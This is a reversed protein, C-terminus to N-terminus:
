IVGVMMSDDCIEKLSEIAELVESAVDDHAVMAEDYTYITEPIGKAYWLTGDLDRILVRFCPTSKGPVWIMKTVVAEGNPYTSRRINNSSNNWMYVGYDSEDKPLEMLTWDSFEGCSKEV